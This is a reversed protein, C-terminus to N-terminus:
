HKANFVTENGADRHAEDGDDIHALISYMVPQIVLKGDDGPKSASVVVVDTPITNGLSQPGRSKPLAESFDFKYRGINDSMRRTEESNLSTAFVLRQPAVGALSHLAFGRNNLCIWQNAHRYVRIRMTLSLEPKVRLQHACGIIDQDALWLPQGEYNGQFHFNISFQSFAIQTVVAPPYTVCEAKFAEIFPMMFKKQPSTKPYTALKALNLGFILRLRRKMEGLWASKQEGDLTNWTMPPCLEVFDASFLRLAEACEGFIKSEDNLNYIFDVYIEQFTNVEM